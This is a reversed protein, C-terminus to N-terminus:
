SPVDTAQLILDKPSQNAYTEDRSLLRYVSATIVWRASARIANRSSCSTPYAKKRGFRSPGLQALSISRGDLRVRIATGPRNEKLVM